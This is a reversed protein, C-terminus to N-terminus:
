AHKRFHEYLKSALALTICVFGLILCAVQLGHLLTEALAFAAASGRANGGPRVVSPLAILGAVLLASVGTSILMRRLTKAHHVSIAISAAALLIALLVILLTGTTLWHYGDHIRELPAGKLTVMANSPQLNIQNAVPALQSQKLQALVADVFPGLNLTVQSANANLQNIFQTHAQKNTSKWAAQIQPSQLIQVVDAHIKPKLLTQLQEPTQGATEDAPLLASALDATPASNLLQNTVQDAVFDQVSPRALVPGVAQVYTPTDTLTRDAWVVLIGASVLLLALTGFLAALPTRIYHHTKPTPTTKTKTM